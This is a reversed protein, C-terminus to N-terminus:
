LPFRFFPCTQFRHEVVPDIGLRIQRQLLSPIFVARFLLAGNGADSLVLGTESVKVFEETRFLMLVRLIRGETLEVIWHSVPRHLEAEAHILGSERFEPM